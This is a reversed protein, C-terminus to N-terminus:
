QRRSVGAAIVFHFLKVARESEVVSSGEKITKNLSAHFLKANQESRAGTLFDEVHFHIQLASSTERPVKRAKALECISHIAQHFSCVVGDTVRTMRYTQINENPSFRYLLGHDNCHNENLKVHRYMKALVASLGIKFFGIRIWIDCIDEQLKCGVM